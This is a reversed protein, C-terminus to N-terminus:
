GLLQECCYHGGLLQKCCYHLTHGRQSLVEAVVVAVALRGGPQRDQLGGATAFVLGRLQVGSLERCLM